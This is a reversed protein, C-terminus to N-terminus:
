RGVFSSNAPQKRRVVDFDIIGMHQAAVAVCYAVAERRAPFSPQDVLWGELLKFKPKWSM